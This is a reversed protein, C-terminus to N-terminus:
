KQLAEVAQNLGNLTLPYMHDNMLEKILNISEYYSWYAERQPNLWVVKHFHQTLRRIWVEGSEENMHEVSGGPWCIEYPGMTADGVFIVKYERGFTHIIDTVAMSSSTRRANDTWVSEYVCNHFYFYEMHKFETKAASFLAETEEIFPDMSGGVDFFLLVNVTNAKEPRMTIDLLGGQKATKSITQAVDLEDSVGTRALTRLKRLALKLNRTGLTVDASLDSYNRKDWVKVASRRRGEHQGIRVGEPNDGYAGFPSTGGTGVWKNGGQHRKEQERLRQKLTEMLKDLGGLSQLKAREEESLNREIQKELWSQPIESDILDVSQVGEFYDAFARDFVDFKAEDKVMVMRSLYYFEEMDAFVVHKEVAKILDLLERISVGLNYKRLTFFFDIFM